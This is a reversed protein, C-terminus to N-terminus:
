GGGMLEDLEQDPKKKIDEVWYGFKRIGYTEYYKKNAADNVTNSVYAFIEPILRNSNRERNVPSM